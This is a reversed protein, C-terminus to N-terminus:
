GSWTLTSKKGSCSLKDVMLEEQKQQWAVIKGFSVVGQRHLPNGSLSHFLLCYFFWILTLSVESRCESSFQAHMLKQPYKNDYNQLQRGTNLIIQHLMNCIKMNTSKNCRDSIAGCSASIFPIEMPPFILLGDVVTATQMTVLCLNWPHMTLQYQDSILNNM